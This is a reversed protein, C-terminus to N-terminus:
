FAKSLHPQGNTKAKAKSKSKSKIQKQKENQKRKENVNRVLAALQQSKQHTQASSSSSRPRFEATPKPTICHYAHRSRRSDISGSYTGVPNGPM